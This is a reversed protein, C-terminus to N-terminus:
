PASWLTKGKPDFIHISAASTQSKEGTTATVLAQSGITALFGESDKLSLNPGDKDLAVNASAGLGSLDLHTGHQDVSLSADDKGRRLFLEPGGGGAFQEFVNLTVKDGKETLLQLYPGEQGVGILVSTNRHPDYLRLEPDGEVIGTPDASSGMRLEARVKGAADKLVFAQAEATRALPKRAMLLVIGCLFVLALTGRMLWRNQKEVRALRDMIQQMEPEQAEM